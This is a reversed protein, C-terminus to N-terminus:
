GLTGCNKQPDLALCADIIGLVIQASQDDSPNSEPKSGPINNKKRVISWASVHSAADVSLRMRHNESYAVGRTRGWRCPTSPLKAFKRIITEEFSGVSIHFELKILVIIQSLDLSTPEEKLANGYPHRRYVPMLTEGVIMLNEVLYIM